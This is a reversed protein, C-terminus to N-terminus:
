TVDKWATLPSAQLKQVDDRAAVGHIQFFQSFQRVRSDWAHLFPSSEQNVKSM